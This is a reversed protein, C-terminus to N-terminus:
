FFNFYREGPEAENFDTDKRISEKYKGQTEKQIKVVNKTSNTVHPWRPGGGATGALPSTDCRLSATAKLGHHQPTWFPPLHGWIMVDIRFYEVMNWIQLEETFGNMSWPHKRWEGAYSCDLHSNLETAANRGAGALSIKPWRFNWLNMTADGM